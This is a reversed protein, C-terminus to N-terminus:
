MRYGHPGQVVVKGGKEVLDAGSPYGEPGAKLRLGGATLPWGGYDFVLRQRGTDLKQENCASQRHLNM